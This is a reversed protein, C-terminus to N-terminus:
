QILEPMDEPPYHAFTSAGAQTPMVESLIKDIAHRHIMPLPQEPRFGTPVLSGSRTRIPILKKPGEWDALAILHRGGRSDLAFVLRTACDHNTEAM